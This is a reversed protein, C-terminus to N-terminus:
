GQLRSCMSGCSSCGSSIAAHAGAAWRWGPPRHGRSACRRCARRRWRPGGRPGRPSCSQQRTAGLPCAAPWLHPRWLTTLHRAPDNGRPPSTRLLSPARSQRPASAGCRGKCAPLWSVVVHTHSTRDVAAGRARMIPVMPAILDNRKEDPARAQACPNAPARRCAAGNCSTGCTLRHWRWHCWRRAADDRMRGASPLYRTAASGASKTCM